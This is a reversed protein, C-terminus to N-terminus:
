LSYTKCFTEIDLNTASMINDSKDKTIISVDGETTLKAYRSLWGLDNNVLKVKTYETYSLVGQLSNLLIKREKRESELRRNAIKQKIKNFM